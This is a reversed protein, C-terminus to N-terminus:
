CRGRKGDLGFLHWASSQLCCNLLDQKTKQSSQSFEGDGKFRLTENRDHVRYLLLPEKIYAVDYHLAFRLWLEWDAYGQLNPSFLGVQDLITRPGFRKTVNKFEILPTEM